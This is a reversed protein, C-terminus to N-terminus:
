NTRVLKPLGTGAPILQNLMVNEIISDLYDVEGILSAAVFHKIPTEFSAKALISSKQSVVGYRTIGRVVGSSTMTDSVLMIHRIDVNLGQNQIVKFVENVVAQRAAEIGLLGYIQHIDNTTTRSTDCWERKFIDKLNSGATMIMFEDNKKLPLVQTIGKIGAIQVKKIKEKLKYLSSLSNNKSGLKVLINDSEEKIAVQKMSKALIKAIKPISLDHEKMADDKFSVELEMSSIDMSIEKMIEGLNTEKIKKALEKIGQGKNYPENLYIEMLPTKITKRGDLIEIIRPLGVTVNMESVGAFHFTNLTMQTGPEGISEASIIGVSEGSDVKSDNYAKVTADLIKKLRDESVDDPVNAKVDDIISKPLLDQYKSYVKDIKNASM